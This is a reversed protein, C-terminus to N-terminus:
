IKDEFNLLKVIDSLPYKLNDVPNDFSFCRVVFYYGGFYKLMFWAADNEGHMLNLYFGNQQFEYEKIKVDSDGYGFLEYLTKDGCQLRFLTAITWIQEVSINKM